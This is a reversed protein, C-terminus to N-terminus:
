KFYIGSEMEKTRLCLNFSSPEWPGRVFNGDFYRFIEDSHVLGEKDFMKLWWDRPRITEHHYGSQNSISMIWVGDPVLHKKVNECLTPLQGEPIHEMVEWSTVVDFKYNVEKWCHENVNVSFLDFPESIDCLFLNKGVYQKQWYGRRRILPYDSGELGAAFINHYKFEEHNEKLQLIDMVASGDSCGLDLLSFPRKDVFLKRALVAFEPNSTSDMMSGGPILRDKSQEAIPHSTQLYIM